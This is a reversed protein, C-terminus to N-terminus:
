VGLTHRTIVRTEVKRDGADITDLGAILAFRVAENIGVGHQKAFAEIREILDDTMLYTKRKLKGRMNSKAPPSASAIQDQWSAPKANGTLADATNKKRTAM